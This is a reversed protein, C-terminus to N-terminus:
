RRDGASRAIEEDARAAQASQPTQRRDGGRALRLADRYVSATARALTSWDRASLDPKDGASQTSALARVLDDSTLRDTYTQVWRPGVESALERNLTNEPVLVPRDLSLALLLAGSNHMERYPLVVLQSERIAAELDDDPVRRLDVAIRADQHARRRVEEGYAATMPRGAVQLSLDPDPLGRFADILEEVGKYPRIHGFFLVRGPTPEVLRDTYLDRYHGHAITAVNPHRPVPTENNLRIWGTTRRALASELVAELRDGPEHPQPNHVTRVVAARSLTTRAILAGFLARKAIRGLLKPHRFFREPWHVHLVDFRGALARSWTFYRADVDGPMHAILLAAYPNGGQEPPWAVQLVRVPGKRRAHQRRNM